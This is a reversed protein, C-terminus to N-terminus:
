GGNSVTEILIEPVSALQQIKEAIQGYGVTPIGILCWTMAPAPVVTKFKTEGQVEAAQQKGANQIGELIKNVTDRSNEALSALLEDQKSKNTRAMASLPDKTATALRAEAETLDTVNVDIEVLPGYKGILYEKRLHGDCLVLQGADNPYVDPYGYWGMQQVVEDLAQHQEDPHERHNWSAELLDAVKVRRIEKNRSQPGGPNQKSTM